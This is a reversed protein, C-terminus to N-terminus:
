KKDKVVLEVPCDKYENPDNKAVELYKAEEALKRAKAEDGAQFAEYAQLQLKKVQRNMSDWRQHSGKCYKAFGDEKARNPVMFQAAHYCQHRMCWIMLENTAEDTYSAHQVGKTSSKAQVALYIEKGIEKAGKIKHNSLIEVITNLM